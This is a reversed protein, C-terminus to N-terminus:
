PNIPYKGDKTDIYNYEKHYIKEANERAKVADEFNSFRGLFYTKKNRTISAIWKNRESDYSVGKKGSTNDSRTKSSIINEYHECIRLNEKRCDELNHFVHDVDKDPNNCDVM